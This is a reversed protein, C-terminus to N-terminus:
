EPLFMMRVVKTPALSEWLYGQQTGSDYSEIPDIIDKSGELFDEM